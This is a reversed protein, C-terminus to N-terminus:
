AGRGNTPWLHELDRWEHVYSRGQRRRRLHLPYLGGNNVIGSGQFTAAGDSSSLQITGTYATTTNGFIDAASVTFTMVAGLSSLLSAPVVGLRATQALPSVTVAASTGTVGNQDAATLTEPGATTFLVNAFTHIGNDTGATLGSTFLYTPPLLGNGLAATDTSTWHLLGTYNAANLNNADLATVTVTLPSGAAVSAASTTIQLHTAVGSTQTVTLTVNNHGPGGQAYALLYKTQIHTIANTTLLANAVIASTVGGSTFTAFKTGDDAGSDTIITYTDGVNPVYSSAFNITLNAGGLSLSGNLGVVLKSNASTSNATNGALFLDYGGTASFTTAGSATMTGVATLGSDGPVLAGNAALAKVFSGTGGLFAGSNVTVPSNTLASDILLTGQLVTTSSTFTLTPSTLQLTGAGAKSFTLPIGFLSGDGPDVPVTYDFGADGTGPIGNSSTGIGPTGVPFDTAGNTRNGVFIGAPDNPGQDIRYVIGKGYNNLNADPITNAPSPGATFGSWGNSNSGDAGAGGGANAVRIDIAHFGATLTLEGSGLSQSYTTSKLVVAGDIMIQASDDIAKAFSLYGTGTATRVINAPGSSVTLLNAAAMGTPFVVTFPGGTSGTVNVTGSTNNQTAATPIGPLNQIYSLFNDATTGTNPNPDYSFPGISQGNYSLTISGPNASTYNVVANTLNPVNILGQYIWTASNSWLHRGVPYYGYTAPVSSSTTGMIPWLVTDTGSINGITSTFDAALSSQSEVLGPTVSSLGTTISGSVVTNGAGTFTLPKTQSINQTLVLTNADSGIVAAGTFSLVGNFTNTGAINELAGNGTGSGVLSLPQNTAYNLSSSSFLGVAGSTTACQKCSSPATPGMALPRTRPLRCCATLSRPLAWSTLVRWPSVLRVWAAKSFITRRAALPAVSGAANSIIPTNLVVLGAPGVFYLDNATLNIPAGNNGLTLTGATAGVYVDVGNGM